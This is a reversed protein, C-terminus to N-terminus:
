FTSTIHQPLHYNPQFYYSHIYDTSASWFVFKGTQQYIEIATMSFRSPFVSSRAFKSFIYKYLSDLIRLIHGILFVIKSGNSACRNIVWFLM